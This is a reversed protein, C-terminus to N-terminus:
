GILRERATRLQRYYTARSLHLRGLVATESLGPTLYGLELVRRLRRDTSSDGFAADVASRLSSRAAAAATARELEAPWRAAMADDDHFERLAGLLWGAEQADARNPEVGNQTAVLAAVYGVLGGPGLDAMWAEATEGDIARDLAPVPRYGMTQLFGRPASGGAWFSAFLYRPNAMGTRTVLVGNAVRVIEALEIPDDARPVHPGVAIFVGSPDISEAALYSLVPGIASDSSAWAPLASAPLYAALGAFSGDLRRVRTAFGPLAVVWPRLNAWWQTGLFEAPLEIDPPVPDAYHTVSIGLGVARRVEPDEILNTLEHLAAADGDFARTALHDAIRQTLTRALLPDDLRLRTRIAEALLPHLAVRHGIRESVSLAFLDSMAQRTSRDPLAAAILRSDVAPTLSAVLLVEPDVGDIEAGALHQILQNALDAADPAVTGPRSAAAVTLALPSGGAWRLIRDQRDPDSVTRRALLARSETEDLPRLALDLTLGGLIGSLWSRDPQVRGVLIVRAEAPLEHLLRERLAVTNAGLLQADDIVILPRAAGSEGVSRVLEIASDVARGDLSFLAYGLDVARRMVERAFASKGIGGPGHILLLRAAGEPDLLQDAEALSDRRGVFYEADVRLAYDRLRDPMGIM